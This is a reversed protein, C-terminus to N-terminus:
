HGLAPQLSAPGSERSSVSEVTHKEGNTPNQVYEGLDGRALAHGETSCVCWKVMLLFKLSSFWSQSHKKKKIWM